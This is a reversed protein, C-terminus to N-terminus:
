IAVSDLVGEFKSANATSGIILFTSSGLEGSMTFGGGGPIYSFNPASSPDTGVLVGDLYYKRNTGDWTTAAHHWSTGVDSVEFDSDYAMWYSGIRHSNDLRFANLQGFGNGGYSLFGYDSPTGEVKFWLSLTYHSAGMPLYANPGPAALVSARDLHLGKGLHGGVESTPTGFNALNSHRLSDLGLNSPNEFNWNAVLGAVVAGANCATDATILTMKNVNESLSLVGNLNLIFSGYTAVVAADTISGNFAASTCSSGAKVENTAAGAYAIRVTDVSTDLDIIAGSTYASFTMDKNLCTDPIHTFSVGTFDFNNTNIDYTAIPTLVIYDAGACATTTVVGQGFEISKGSDLNISAANTVGLYIAFGLFAIAVIKALQNNGSKKPLDVDDYYTVREIKKKM